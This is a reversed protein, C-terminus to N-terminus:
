QSLIIEPDSLSRNEMQLRKRVSAVTNILRRAKQWEDIIHLAAATPGEEEEEKEETDEWEETMAAVPINKKSRTDRMKDEINAKQEEENIPPLNIVVDNIEDKRTTMNLEVGGSEAQIIHCVVFM